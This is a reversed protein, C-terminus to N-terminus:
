VEKPPYHALGSLDLPQETELEDEVPFPMPKGRGGYVMETFGIVDGEQWPERAPWDPLIILLNQILRVLEERKVPGTFAVHVTTEPGVRTQLYTEWGGM